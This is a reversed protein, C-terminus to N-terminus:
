APGHSPLGCGWRSGVWLLSRCAPFFLALVECAKDPLQAGCPATFDTFAAYNGGTAAYTEAMAPAGAVLLLIAAVWRRAVSKWRVVLM